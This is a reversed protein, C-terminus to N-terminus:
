HEGGLNAKGKRKQLIRNNERPLPEKEPQLPPVTVTRLGTQVAAHYEIPQPFKEARFISTITIGFRTIPLKPPNTIPLRSTPTIKASPMSGRRIVSCESVISM